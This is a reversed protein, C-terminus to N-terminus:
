EEGEAMMKLYAIEVKALNNNDEILALTERMEKICASNFAMANRLKLWLFPNMKHYWKGDKLKDYCANVVKSAQESALQANNFDVYLEDCKDWYTRIRKKQNYLQKMTLM